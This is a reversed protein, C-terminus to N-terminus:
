DHRTIGKQFDIWEAYEPVYGFIGKAIKQECQVEAQLRLTEADYQVFGCDNCSPWAGEDEEANWDASGCKPCETM